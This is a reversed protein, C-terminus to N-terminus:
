NRSDHGGTVKAGREENAGEYAPIEKNDADTKKSEVTQYDLSILEQNRLWRIAGKIAIINGGGQVWKKLAEKQGNISNYNGDPMIITEYQSLDIRSFRNLDVMPVAMAMNQDLHHWLEGADYSNTGSGILMIAKPDKLTGLSRSGLNVGASVLGTGTSFVNIHNERSLQDMLDRLEEASVTQNNGCPILLTGRDFQRIANIESPDTNPADIMSGLDIEVSFTENVLKVIIGKQLLANLAKPAYFNDWEILYAYPNEASSASRNIVPVTTIRQGLDPSSRIESYPIDFALPLTWASVDYFLSDEFTTLKEFISKTLRYQDQALPVIYANNPSLKLGSIMVEKDAQYIEIQHSLLIEIFRNVKVPDDNDGFVYGKVPNNRALDRAELFSQRKFELIEKRLAIAADQTSLMTTVQNRITFPFTLLGNNSEQLHGRSSAQEFLIGICGQADPYTSGKGYYFDDFSEKTYYLSGIKDLARGHFEAIKYTLIQNQEPTNPNTRSPIGPQFFFTSNTGMEHHDTLIDPKWEHFVRIRGQSEPHTLLLWDRNLDFWYHNTRGRPWAESYERSNSDSILNKGKHSNVWTSFRQMGDPNYCPDFLIIADQLLEEIKEGQGAALYYAVALAGNVGSAENGHITSGQYVVIPMDETSVEKSMSTNTLKKHEAKIEDLRAHNALSTVTLYILPRKEHSRAYETLTIRDSLRAWNKIISIFNTMLLM